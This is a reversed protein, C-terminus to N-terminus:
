VQLSSAKYLITMGALNFFAVLAWANLKALDRSSPGFGAGGTEGAPTRKAGVLSCLATWFSLEPWSAAGSIAPGLCATVVPGAASKWGFGSLPTCRTSGMAM